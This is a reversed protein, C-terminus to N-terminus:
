EYRDHIFKASAAVTPTPTPTPALTSLEFCVGETTSRAYIRNDSLVPSSWCKGDLMDARAVETYGANTADVVAIDGYDALVVLKDGVRMLGGMGFNPQSWVETGTLLNVCKLAATGDAKHGYIGYIYGNYFLPTSWTTKLASTKRWEEVASFTDTGGDYDIRCVGADALPYGATHHVYNGCVVPSAGTATQYAVNYRWLEVGTNASVAVLRNRALFIIQRVGHITAAVPSAHTMREDVTTKWALVATTRNRYFALFSQTSGGGALIVKDDELLPSAANEYPIMRGGYNAVIDESWTVGGTEADFCYLNLACDLVYVSTGDCSPTSRPGDGTGAGALYDAEAMPSAWLETGTAADRAVCYERLVTDPPVVRSELTFARGDSVSFSSFGNATPKTWIPTPAGGSWDISGITENSARNGSNGNYQLWDDARTEAIMLCVVFAALLLRGRMFGQTRVSRM